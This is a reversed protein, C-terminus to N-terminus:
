ARVEAPFLAEFGGSRGVLTVDVFTGVPASRGLGERVTAGFLALEGHGRFAAEDVVLRYAYGRRVSRDANVRRAVSMTVETLADIKLHHARISEESGTWSPVSLFLAEKLGALADRAGETVRAARLARCALSAGLPPPVYPSAPTLSRFGIEHGGVRLSGALDGTRVASALAGNTALLRMSVIGASVDATREDGRDGFTIVVDPDTAGAHAVLSTAFVFRADSPAAGLRRVNALPATRGGAAPSSVEADCVAYVGGARRALGAVRLPAEGREVDLPLPEARAEFLNVVPACHARVDAPDLRLDASTADRLEFSLTAQESPRAALCGELGSVRLFRLKDPFLWAETFAGFAQPPGDPDPALAAGPDLEGRVVAGPAIAVSDRWAPSAVEARALGSTLAHLLHLANELEGGFYLTVGQGIAANLPESGASRLRIRLVGPRGPRAEIAAGAVVFASLAVDRIPRFTCSIGDIPASSLVCDAPVVVRGVKPPEFGVIAASPIPRRLWPACRDALLEYVSQQADRTRDLVTAGLLAVGEAMRETVPDAVPRALRPALGPVARALRQAGEALDRLSTRPFAPM